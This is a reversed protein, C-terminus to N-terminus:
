NAQAFCHCHVLQRRAESRCGQQSTGSQDLTHEICPEEKRKRVQYHKCSTAQDQALRFLHFGLTEHILLLLAQFCTGWSM